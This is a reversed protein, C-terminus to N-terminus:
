EKDGKKKEIEGGIYIGIEFIFFAGLFLLGVSVTIM